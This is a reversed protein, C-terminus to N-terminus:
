AGVCDRPARREGAGRRRPTLLAQAAPPSPHLHLSHTRGALRCACRLRACTGCARRHSAVGGRGEGTFNKTDEAITELSVDGGLFGHETMKATHIGLIQLRGREDPLGIEIKLELRGPRVLADDLMDPRNTMGILLVNNLSEVGDIKTLLTNVISDHVGTGGGVTGRQKCIADIEDFIQAICRSLPPSKRL